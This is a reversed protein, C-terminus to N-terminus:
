AKCHQIDIKRPGQYYKKCRSSDDVCQQCCWNYPYKDFVEHNGFLGTFGGAWDRDPTGAAAGDHGDPDIIQGENDYCCQQGAGMPTEGDSRICGKAGPHFMACGDGQILGVIVSSISSVLPCSPDTSWGDPIEFTDYNTPQHPNQGRIPINCPCPFLRNVEELWNEGQADALEKMEDTYWQDCVACPDCPVKDESDDKCMGDDDEWHCFVNASCKVCDHHINSCATEPEAPPPGPGPLPQPGPNISICSM